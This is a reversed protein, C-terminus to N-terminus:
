GFFFFFEPLWKGSVKGKDSLEALEADILQDVSKKEVKLSSGNGSEDTGTRVCQKKVPLVVVEAEQNLHDVPKEKIEQTKKEFSADDENQPGPKDRSDINVAIVPEDVNKKQLEDGDRQGDDEADKNEDNGEDDSSSSDSFSFKTIKNLPNLSPKLKVVKSEIGEVVKEFFQVSFCCIM